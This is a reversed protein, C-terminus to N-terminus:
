KKQNQELKEIEKINKELDATKKAQEAQQAKLYELYLYYAGGSALLTLIIPDRAAHRLSYKINPAINSIRHEDFNHYMMSPIRAVTMAKRFADTNVILAANLWTLYSPDITVWTEITTQITEGIPEVTTKTRTIGTDFIHHSIKIDESKEVQNNFMGFMSKAPKNTVSKNYLYKNNSETTWEDQNEMSIDEGNIRQIALLILSITLIKQLKGM